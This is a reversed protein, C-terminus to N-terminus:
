KCESGHGVHNGPLLCARSYGYAMETAALGLLCKTYVHLKFERVTVPPCRRSIACNARENIVPNSDVHKGVSSEEDTFRYQRQIDACEEEALAKWAAPDSMLSGNLRQNKLWGLSYFYLDDYTYYGCDKHSHLTGGEYEWTIAEGKGDGAFTPCTMNNSRMFEIGSSAADRFDGTPEYGIWFAAFQFYCSGPIDEHEHLVDKVPRYLDEPHRKGCESTDFHREPAPAKSYGNLGGLLGQVYSWVGSQIQSSLSSTLRPAVHDSHHVQVSVACSCFALVSFVKRANHPMAAMHPVAAFVSSHKESICM